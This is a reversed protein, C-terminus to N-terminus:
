VGRRIMAAEGARLRETVWAPNRRADLRRDMVVEVRTDARYVHRLHEFAAAQGRPVVLISGACEAVAECLEELTVPKALLVDVPERLDHFSLFTSTMLGIRVAPWRSRVARVVEWGSMESMTLDTLVLDATEGAELRALAEPGSSATSVTHGVSELMLGIVERVATDNDIVLIKV